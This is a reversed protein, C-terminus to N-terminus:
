AIANYNNQFSPVAPPPDRRDKPIFDGDTAVANDMYNFESMAPPPDRRDKPIFDGDTAVANDVNQFTQDAKMAFLGVSLLVVAFIAVLKKM